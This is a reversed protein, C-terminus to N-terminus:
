SRDPTADTAQEPRESASSGLPRADSEDPPSPASSEGSDSPNVSVGNLVSLLTEGFGEARFDTEGSQNLQQVQEFLATSLPNPEESPKPDGDEHPTEAPADVVAADVVDMKKEAQLQDPEVDQAQATMRLETEIESLERGSLMKLEFTGTDYADQFRELANVRNQITKVGESITYLSVTLEDPWEARNEGYEAEAYDTLEDYAERYETLEAEYHRILDAFTVTTTIPM